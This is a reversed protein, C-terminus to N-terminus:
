SPPILRAMAAAANGPDPVDYLEVYEFAQGREPKLTLSIHGRGRDDVMVLAAEVLREAPVDRQVGGTVPRLFLIRRDTVALTGFVDAFIGGFFEPARSLPYWALPGLWLAAFLTLPAGFLIAEGVSSSEQANSWILWLAGFLILLAPACFIAMMLRSFGIARFGRRGSWVVIEGPEIGAPGEDPAELDPRKDRVAIGLRELIAVASDANAVGFLTPRSATRGGDGRTARFGLTRRGEPGGVVAYDIEALPFGAPRRGAKVILRRPTLVFRTRSAAAVRRAVALLIWLCAGGFLAGALYGSGEGRVTWGEPLSGADFFLWLWVLGALVLTPMVTVPWLAAFTAGSRGRGAWVFGEGPDVLAAVEESLGPPLASEEASSRVPESM